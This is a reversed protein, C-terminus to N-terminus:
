RGIELALVARAIELNYQADVRAIAASTDAARAVEVDLSSSAGSRYGLETAALEARAAVSERGTADLTRELSAVSRAATAVELVIARRGVEFRAKTAAIKADEAAIRARAGSGLPFLLSATISPSGVPVDSDTGATYGGAVLLVPFAGGAIVRRGASAADTSASLSAIEARNALARTVNADATAVIAPAVSTAAPPGGSGPPGPPPQTSAATVDRTTRLDTAQPLGTELLLAQDADADAGRAAELDAEARAVAVEARLVDLKPADGAGFRLTAASESTRASSLAATRAEVTSRTKLADYYLRATAIRESRIAVDRDARAARLTFAAQRLVSGYSLFDTLTEQLGVTVLRSTINPGPPNGQPTQVYSTALSPALASRAAALTAANQRVQADAAAISPSVAVAADGAQMPSVAAFVVIAALAIM